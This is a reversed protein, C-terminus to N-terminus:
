LFYKLNFLYQQCTSHSTTTLWILVGPQLIKLSLESKQQVDVVDHSESCNHQFQVLWQEVKTQGLHKMSPRLMNFREVLLVLSASPCTKFKQFHFIDLNSICFYALKSCSCFLLFEIEFGTIKKKSTKRLDTKNLSFSLPQCKCTQIYIDVRFIM